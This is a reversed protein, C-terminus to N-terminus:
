EVRLFPDARLRLVLSAMGALVFGSLGAAATLLGATSTLNVASPVVGVTDRYEFAEGWAYAYVGLGVALVVGCSLGLRRAWRPASWALGVGALIVLLYASVVLVSVM